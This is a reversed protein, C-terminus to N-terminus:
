IIHLKEGRTELLMNRMEKQARALWAKLHVSRDVSNKHLNLHEELLCLIEGSHEGKIQTRVLLTMLIWTEAYQRNLARETMTMLM